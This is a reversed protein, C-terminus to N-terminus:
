KFQLHKANSVVLNGLQKAVEEKSAIDYIIWMKIIGYVGQIIYEMIMRNQKTDKYVNLMMKRVFTSVRAIYGSLNEDTLLIRFLEVQKELVDLITMFMEEASKRSAKAKLLKDFDIISRSAEFSKSVIKFVIEEKDKYHLYITNRNVNARKAIDIIRVNVYGKEEILELLAAEIAAESKIVRLDTNM